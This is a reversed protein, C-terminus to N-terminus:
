GKGVFQMRGLFVGTCCCVGRSRQVVLELMEFPFELGSRDAPYVSIAVPFPCDGQAAAVEALGVWALDPKEGAASDHRSRVRRRLQSLGVGFQNRHPVREALAKVHLLSRCQDLRASM